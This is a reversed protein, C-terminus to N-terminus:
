AFLDAVRISLDPFALPSVTGDAGVVGVDRYLEGDPERCITVSEAATDAVWYERIGARAYLAFKVTRDFRLSTEAVEVLLLVDDATPAFTKYSRARLVTLDPEPESYRPIQVPNQPSVVARVGLGLVVLRNLNNVCAMHRSGIPSMELIEGDILEVRDAPQLIGTEAMRHYEEITFLRRMREALVAM